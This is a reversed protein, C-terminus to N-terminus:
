RLLKWVKLPCHMAALSFDGDTTLMTLEHRICLQALLADIKGLELGGTVGYGASHAIRYRSPIGAVLRQYGGAVDGPGGALANASQL